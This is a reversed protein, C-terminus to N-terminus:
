EAHAGRVDSPTAGFRRRFVRHFYSLDGFGATFAIAGVTWGAYRPNALMRRACLLQQELKYASFTTGDREFLRQLSRPTMGHRAALADVTYNEGLSEAIEAKIAALRAAAVGREEAIAAGDHSAGIVTAVLDHIHTKVLNRLEPEGIASNQGIAKLYRRLLRLAYSTRPIPRMAADEVNRVFAAIPARPVVIGRFNVRGHRSTSSETHVFVTADGRGFSLNRGCHTVEHRGSLNVMVGLGDDGDALMSASRVLRAASSVLTFTRVGPLARVTAQAEFPHEPLPEIDLRVVQLGFVERWFPVRERVPLATTSFRRPTFDLGDQIGVDVGQACSPRGSEICGEKLRREVAMKM